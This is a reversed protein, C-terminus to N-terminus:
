ISNLNKVKSYQKFIYLAYIFTAMTFAITISYSDDKLIYVLIPLFIVMSLAALIHSLFFPATKEFSKLVIVFPRISLLIFQMLLFILFIFLGDGYKSAYLYNYFFLGIPISLVYLLMVKLYNSKILALMDQHVLSFSQTKSKESFIPTYYNELTILLISFVNLLNQLTRTKGITVDEVNLYDAFIYIGQSYGWFGIGGILIWKAYNFHQKIIPTGYKVQNTSFLNKISFDKNQYVIIFLYLSAIMYSVCYVSLIVHLSLAKLNLLVGLVFCTNLLVSAIVAHKLHIKQTSFLFKKFVEFSTMFLPIGLMLLYNVEIGQFSLLGYCITALVINLLFNNRLLGSIYVSQNDKWNKTLFVLVPGAILLSSCIFIVMLYSYFVVFDAFVEVAALKSILFIVGFNFFAFLVQDILTLAKKNSLSKFFTIM